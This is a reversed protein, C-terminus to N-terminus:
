RRSDKQTFCFKCEFELSHIQAHTSIKQQRAQKQRQQRAAWRPAKGLLTLRGRRRWRRVRLLRMEFMHENDALGFAELM